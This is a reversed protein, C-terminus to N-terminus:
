RDNAPALTLESIRRAEDLEVQTTIFSAGSHASSAASNLTVRVANGRCRLVLQRVEMDANLEVSQLELPAFLQMTMTSAASSILQLQEHENAPVIAIGDIDFAGNTTVARFPQATPLLRVTAIHGAADLDIEGLQFGTTLPLAARAALAPIEIAVTPSALRARISGIQFAPTFQMAVV